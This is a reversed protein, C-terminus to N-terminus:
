NNASVNRDHYFCFISDDIMNPVLINLLCHLTEKEYLLKNRREGCDDLYKNNNGIKPMNQKENFCRM